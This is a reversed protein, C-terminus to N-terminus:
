EMQKSRCVGYWWLSLIIRVIYLLSGGEGGRWGGGNGTQPCRQQQEDVAARTDHMVRFLRESGRRCIQRAVFRLGWWGAQSGRLSQSRIQAWGAKKGKDVLSTLELTTNPTWFICTGRHIEDEKGGQLATETQDFGLLFLSFVGPFSFFCIM